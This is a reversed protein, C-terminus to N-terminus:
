NHAKQKPCLEHGAAFQIGEGEHPLRPRLHHVLSLAPTVRSIGAACHVLINGNQLADRIFNYCEDFHPTMKYTPIDFANVIKHNIGAEKPYSVGLMAAATLM